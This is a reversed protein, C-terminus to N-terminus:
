RGLRFPHQERDDPWLLGPRPAGAHRFGSSSSASRKKKKKCKKASVAHHKKKKKKCKKKHPTVPTPGPPSAQPGEALTLEVAGIDAGNGGAVNAKNPNDVARDSLRQDLYSYSYSQDVVPSTSAPKLTPTYGGNLGLAGLQPDQGTIISAASGIGTTGPDEVLDYAVSGGTANLDPNDASYSFNNALITGFLGIQGDVSVGGGAGTAHNGSVTSDVLLADGFAYVAGGDGADASNGSFTSSRLQGIDRYSYFGGGADAHNDSFTSYAIFDDQGSDYNGSEYIAGGYGSATNGTLEAGFVRLLADDNQIAGGNGSVNGGTLTLGDIEVIDGANVPNVDFIRSTPESTVTLLDPGPGYVYVSDTIDIQGGAALTLGINGTLTPSFYIRDSGTNTNADAVAQRLSCDSPTVDSCAGAGAPDSLNDVTFDDAAAPSVLGLAAGAAFGVGTIVSHRTQWGQRKAHEQRRDRRRRRQRKAM